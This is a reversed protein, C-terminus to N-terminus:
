KQVTIQVSANANTYLTPSQPVFHVNLTWTGAGLKTGAAPSYTFTGPVNATADLQASGLPTGSSIPNPAAWTIVPAAKSVTLAAQATVTKYDTTDTPTFTATLKQQGPNLITGAGPNYAFTGTVNATADLQPSGLPTGYSIAVPTWTIQPIAQNVQLLVTATAPAYNKNSPTLTVSLPQSGATLLTGAPPTYTYTGAVSAKANLQKSSLATGYTIAAPTSWNLTVPSQWTVTVKNSSM